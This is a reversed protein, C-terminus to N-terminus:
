KVGRELRELRILLSTIEGKLRDCKMKNNHIENKMSYSEIFASNDAERIEDRNSDILKQLKVFQVLWALLTIALISLLINEM